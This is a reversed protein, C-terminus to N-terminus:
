PSLPTTLKVHSHEPHRRGVRPKAHPCVAVGRDPPVFRRPTNLGSGATRRPVSGGANMALNGGDMPLIAGSVFSAADSALFIAVGKIEEPRGLRGM